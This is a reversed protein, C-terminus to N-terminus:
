QIMKNICLQYLLSARLSGSKGSKNGINGLDEIIPKPSVSKM